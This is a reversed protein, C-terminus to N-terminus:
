FGMNEYWMDHKKARRYKARLENLQQNLQMRSAELQGEYKALSDGYAFEQKELALRSMEQTQMKQSEALTESLGTKLGGQRKSMQQLQGSLQDYNQGVTTTMQQLQNQYNEQLNTYDRAASESLTEFREGFNRLATRAATKQARYSATKAGVGAIMELGKIVALAIMPGAM